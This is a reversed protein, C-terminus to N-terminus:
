YPKRPISGYILKRRKWTKRTSRSRIDSLIRERAGKLVNRDRIGVLYKALTGEDPTIVPEETVPAAATVTEAAQPAEPAAATERGGCGSLVGLIGLIAIFTTVTRKKMRM